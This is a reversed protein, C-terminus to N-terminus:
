NIKKPNYFAKIFGISFAFNSLTFDNDIYGIDALPGENYTSKKVLNNFALNSRFDVFIFQGASIKYKIGGGFVPSLYVNKRIKNLKPAPLKITELTATSAVANILLNFRVGINMYPRWKSEQKKFTYKFQLPLELWSQNEILEQSLVGLFNQNKYSYSYGKFIADLELQMKSNLYWESLIGFQYRFKGNYMKVFDKVTNTNTNEASRIFLPQYVSYNTGGFGGITFVPHKRFKDFERKYEMPDINDLPRQDPDLLLIERIYKDANAQNDSYLYSLILLKYARIKDAKSFGNEICPQLLSFVDFIKGNDFNKEANKLIDACNQQAQAHYGLIFM